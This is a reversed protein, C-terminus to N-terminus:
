YVRYHPKGSRLSIPPTCRAASMLLTKRDTLVDRMFGGGIATIVGMMLSGVPWGFDLELAKYADGVGFLAAGVGDVYRLLKFIQPKYFFGIEYRWLDANQFDYM